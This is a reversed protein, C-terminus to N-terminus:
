RAVETTTMTLYDLWGELIQEPEATEERPLSDKETESKGNRGEDEGGGATPPRPGKQAILLLTLVSDSSQFPGPCTYLQLDLSYM